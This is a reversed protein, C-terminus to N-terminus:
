VVLGYKIMFVSCVVTLGRKEMKITDVILSSMKPCCIVSSVFDPVSSCSGNFVKM